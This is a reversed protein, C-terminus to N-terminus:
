EVEEGNYEVIEFERGCKACWAQAIWGVDHRGPRIDVKIKSHMCGPM